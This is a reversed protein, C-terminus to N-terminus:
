SFTHHPRHTREVLDILHRIRVSTDYGASHELAMSDLFRLDNTLTSSKGLREDKFLSFDNMRAAVYADELENRNMKKAREKFFDRAAHDRAEELAEHDVM